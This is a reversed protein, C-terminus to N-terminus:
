KGDESDNTFGGPLIANTLIANTFKANQWGVVGSLDANSLDAGTFDVFRLNAERLDAHTLNARLLLTRAPAAGPHFVGGSLDAGRFDAAMLNADSLDTQATVQPIGSHVFSRLGANRFKANRLDCSCFSVGTCGASELIIGSLDLSSLHGSLAVRSFDREGVLYRQKLEETTIHSYNDPMITM